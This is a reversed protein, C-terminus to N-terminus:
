AKTAASDWLNWLLHRDGKRNSIMDRVAQVFPEPPDCFCLGVHLGRPGEGQESRCWMIDALTALERGELPVPVELRVRRGKLASADLVGYPDPLFLGAGSVSLDSLVANFTRNPRLREVPGVFTARAQLHAKRRPARRQGVPRRVGALATTTWWVLEVGHPAQEGRPRGDRCILWRDATSPEVATAPEAPLPLFELRDRHLISWAIHPRDSGLFETALPDITATEPRGRTDGSLIRGLSPSLLSGKPDVASLIKLVTLARLVKEQGVLSDLIADVDPVSIHALEFGLLAALGQAADQGFLRNVEWGGFDGELIRCISSLVDM